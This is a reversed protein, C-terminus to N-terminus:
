ALGIASKLTQQLPNTSGSTCFSCACAITPVDNIPAPSPLATLGAEDELAAAAISPPAVTQWGATASYVYYTSGLQVRMSNANSGGTGYYNRIRISRRSGLGIVLDTGSITANLNSLSFDGLELVDSADTFSYIDRGTARTRSYGRFRNASSNALITDNADSNVLNEIATRFAITTGFPSTTFTGGGRDYYSVSNFASQTTIIGNQRLDFRYSSANSLGSFDFTDIGGRDWLSQKLQTTTGRFFRESAFYSHVTNFSYTTDTSNTNRRGYLYQLAEIDYAMPTIDGTGISNYSM